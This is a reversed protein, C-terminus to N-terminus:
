YIDFIRTDYKNVKIEYPSKQTFNKNYIFIKPNQLYFLEYIRFGDITIRSINISNMLDDSVYKEIENKLTRHSFGMSSYWQIVVKNRLEIKNPFLQRIFTQVARVMQTPIGSRDMPSDILESVLWKHIYILIILAQKKKKITNIYIKSFMDYNFITKYDPGSLKLECLEANNKEFSLYINYINEDIIYKFHKSVMYMRLVDVYNLNKFIELVLEPPINDLM